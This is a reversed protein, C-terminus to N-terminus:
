FGLSLSLQYSRFNPFAYLDLGRYIASNFNAGAEPDIGTYKTITFLNRGSVSLFANKVFRNNILSSFNYSLTVDRLRVFSGDEVFYSNTNNTQYLSNYYNVFPGTQSGITVAKDLDSHILDRYLWQKTQNYVDNGKTWDIQFSLNLNKKITFNNTFSVTFDPNPNGIEVQDSTFSVAKTSQNVVMGDVLVYNGVDAVPIYRVGNPDLEDVSSLPKKGFMTGLETGQRIVFQGAGSGGITIDKGNFVKDVMMKSAGFRTGFSWKFDSSNYVEADVAFQFGSSSFSLLNDLLASAGSSPAIDVARIVDTSKRDWYTANLKLTKFWNKQGLLLGLDLGIETEKSRQVALNANRSTSQSALYGSNGIQGSSLTIQRDFDGPQTGAEGYAGRLKLEYISKNKILDDFRFYVDGRPFVFADNGAGFASSYDIRVGGSFGFLNGYDVRQNILYGFTVFESSSETYTKTDAVAASFPPYPSFGTGETTVNQYRKHRYDYSLQTSTQIPLSLGFDKQFDTKVFVSFLSNQFTQRDRDLTIRGNFPDLGVGPAATNLQYLIDDQFDFRYTDLGYKYNLEVFKPFKYNFEMGQVIRTNKANYKRFDYTYFPNVSNDQEPNSVTNGLPDRFKLDWFARSTLASGLGSYVNNAGTIGGTNNDSYILQTTSRLTFNKFVEVGLNLNLNTRKLRGNLISQQNSNSASVSYDVSEGGGSIGINNNFTTANSKFLQDFHDYTQEKYPKDNLLTGTLAPALPADWFGNDDRQIRPNGANGSVIYGEADTQFYHNQARGFKGKLVNDINARSSVTIVPASNKSGRKTFIQIVGNAGQAGYLTGAAAGQIVEVRDVNSLDLDSLRSSVNTGSGNNNSGANIEVGDVLIMPQTNGLTNIGRLLISAQQGPQGSTSSIQAGAVKGILAQDLSASPVALMNKSSVSEIAIATKRKDTAVGVGTVVIESLLKSDTTLSANVNNSSGINITQTGFGISSFELATANSPVSLSFKGNAGTSVGVNTGRVKVSVGPIPLGDEKSTVTGTITRNQAIASTAVFLLIFLSQLLKKM